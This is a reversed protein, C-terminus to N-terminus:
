GRMDATSARVELVFPIFDNPCADEDCGDSPPADESALSSCVDNVARITQGTRVLSSIFMAKPLKLGQRALHFRAAGLRQSQSLGDIPLDPLDPKGLLLSRNEPTTLETDHYAL